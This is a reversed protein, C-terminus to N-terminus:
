GIRGTLLDGSSKFSPVPTSEVPVTPRLLLAALFGALLVLTLIPWIQRHARRLDIQM